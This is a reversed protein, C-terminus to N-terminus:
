VLSSILSTQYEVDESYQKAIKDFFEDLQNVEEGVKILSIMRKHYIPHKALSMNLSNGKLIATEVTKLSMEIPYFGIMQKVLSIARLLPIKASILLMMSQCFRGLYIKRIIEGFFPIRLMLRTSTHRFWIKKRQRYMFVVLLLSLVFTPLSYYQVIRSTNLILKTLFPLDGGFRKFVDAFMPVVFNMMFFVAGFSAALVIMPYTLVNIVQRRQRIKKQFYSALEKLVINIKGSEEGIQLSYYEYATFLKTSQVAESLTSGSVISNKISHILFKDKDKIQEEAILELTTKIDVGAALLINLEMYFEEKKKDGLKSGFLSIDKNLFDLISSTGSKPSKTDILEIM